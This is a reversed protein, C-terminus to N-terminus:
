NGDHSEKSSGEDSSQLDGPIQRARKSVFEAQLKRMRALQADAEAKGGIIRSAGSIPISSSARFVSDSESRSYVRRGMEIQEERVTNIERLKRDVVLDHHDKEGSLSASLQEALEDVSIAQFKKEVQAV